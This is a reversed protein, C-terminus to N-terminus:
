LGSSFIMVITFDNPFKLDAYAYPYGILHPKKFKHVLLSSPHIHKKLLVYYAISIAIHIIHNAHTSTFLGFVSDRCGFTFNYIANVLNFGVCFLNRLLEVWCRTIKANITRAMWFASSPKKKNYRRYEEINKMCNEYFIEFKVHRNQCFTSFICDATLNKASGITLVAKSHLNKLQIEVHFNNWRKNARSFILGVSIQKTKILKQKTNFIPLIRKFPKTNWRNSSWPGLSNEWGKSIM